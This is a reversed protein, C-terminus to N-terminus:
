QKNSSEGGSPQTVRPKPSESVPIQALDHPQVESSLGLTAAEAAQEAEVQLLLHVHELVGGCQWVVCVRLVFHM